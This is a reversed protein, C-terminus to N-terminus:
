YEFLPEIENELFDWIFDLWEDKNQALHFPCSPEWLAHCPKVQKNNKSLEPFLTEIKKWDGYKIFEFITNSISIYQNGSGTVMSENLIWLLKGKKINYKKHLIVCMFIDLIAFGIAAHPSKNTYKWKLKKVWYEELVWSVQNDPLCENVMEYFFNLFGRFSGDVLKVKWESPEIWESLQEIKTKVKKSIIELEQIIEPTVKPCVISSAIDIDKSTNTM